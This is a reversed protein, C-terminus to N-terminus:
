CLLKRPNRHGNISSSIHVSSLTLPPLICVILIFDMELLNSDIQHFLYTTLM